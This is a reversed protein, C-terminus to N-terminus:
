DSRPSVVIGLSALVHEAIVPLQADDIDAPKLDTAGRLGDLSSGHLQARAVHVQSFEADTLDCDWWAVAEFRAARFDARNLRCTEYRVREGAAMAFNVDELRSDVFRVDRLRSQALQAGSLRSDSFVVKSLSAEELDVGSLDSAVVVVDVFRSRELRAGVLSARNLRVGSLLLPEDFEDPLTGVLEVGDWEGTRVSALNVQPLEDPVRPAFPKDSGQPVPAAARPM